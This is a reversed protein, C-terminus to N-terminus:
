LKPNKKCVYDVDKKWQCALCEAHQKECCEKTYEECGPLKAFKEEKCLKFVPKKESCGMCKAHKTLCLPDVKCGKLTPTFKCIKEVTIKKQCALCKAEIQKCCLYKPCNEAESNLKQCYSKPDM